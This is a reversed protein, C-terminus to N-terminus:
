TLRDVFDQIKKNGKFVDIKDDLEKKMAKLELFMEDLSRLIDKTGNVNEVFAIELKSIRNEVESIKKDISEFRDSTSKDM